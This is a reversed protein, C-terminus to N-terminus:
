SSTNSFLSSPRVGGGINYPAVVVPPAANGFLSFPPIGVIYCAAELAADVGGSAVPPPTLITADMRFINFYDDEDEQSYDWEFVLMDFYDEEDELSNEEFGLLPDEGCWSWTSMTSDDSHGGCGASTGDEVLQKM